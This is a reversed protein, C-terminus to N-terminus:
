QEKADIMEGKAPSFNPAQALRANGRKGPRRKALLVRVSNWLTIFTKVEALSNPHPNGEDDFMVVFGGSDYDTPQELYTHGDCAFSQAGYGDGAAHTGFYVVDIPLDGSHGYNAEYDVMEVCHPFEDSEGQAIFGIKEFLAQDKKRCTLEMYCRDGM